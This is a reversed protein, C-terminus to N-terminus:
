SRASRCSVAALLPSMAGALCTAAAALNYVVAFTAVAKIAASRRGSVAFLEPLFGLGRGLFYFDSKGELVGRDVVPTGRCSATDFALSDNAGDGIFLVQDGGISRVWRGQRGPLAWGRRLGPSASRGPSRPSRGARDGSLIHFGLGRARLGALGEATGPRLSEALSFAALPLRRPQLHLRRLRISDPGSAPGRRGGARGM